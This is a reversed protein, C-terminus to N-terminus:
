VIVDDPLAPTIAKFKNHSKIRISELLPKDTNSSNLVYRKLFYQRSFATFTKYLKQGEVDGLLQKFLVGLAAKTNAWACNGIKQEKQSYGKLHTLNLSYFMANFEELTEFKTQLNVLLEKTCKNSPLSYIETTDKTQGYGRNCVTLTNNDLVFSILHDDLGSLILLPQNSKIKSLMAENTLSSGPYTNLLIQSIKEKFVEDQKCILEDHAFAQFCELLMKLTYEVDIGELKIQHSVGETDTIASFGEIGWIHALFIRNLIEKSFTEDAHMQKLQDILPSSNISEAQTLATWGRGDQGNVDAGLKYLLEVLEPSKLKVALTLLSWGNEAIHNVDAGAEVLLPIMQIKNKKIALTLPLFGKEDSHNFDAGLQGLLDIMDEAEFLVAATLPTWKNKDACNLDVGLEHLAIVMDPIDDEIARTLPTFGSSDIGNIDAGLKVLIHLMDFNEDLVALTLPSFKDSDCGNVNSKFPEIFVRYEEPDVEYKECLVNISDQTPILSKIAKKNRKGEPLKEQKSEKPVKRKKDASEKVERAFAPNAVAEVRQNLVNPVPPSELNGNSKSLHDVALRNNSSSPLPQIYCM